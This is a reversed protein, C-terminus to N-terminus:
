GCFSMALRDGWTGPRSGGCEPDLGILSARVTLYVYPFTFLSLTLWSGTFGYIVPIRDIGLHSHLTDYLFGRPGLMAVFTFAAVYSPIVLPLAMLVPWLRALPLEVGETCWAALVGLVGATLSVALALVVTNALVEATRIRFVFDLSDQGAQSARLILYVIPVCLAVIALLSPALLLLPPHRRRWFQQTRAADMQIPQMVM